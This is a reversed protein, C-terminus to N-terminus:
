PILACTSSVNCLLRASCRRCDAFRDNDIFLQSELVGLRDFETFLLAAAHYVPGMPDDPHAAEWVDFQHHADSIDLNYMDNFGQEIPTGPHASPNTACFAPTVFIVAIFALLGRRTKTATMQMIRDMSRLYVPFYKGM